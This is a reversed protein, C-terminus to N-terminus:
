AVKKYQDQRLLFTESEKPVLESLFKNSNPLLLQFSNYDLKMLWFELWCQKELVQLGM